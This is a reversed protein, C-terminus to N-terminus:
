QLRLAAQAIDALGPTVEVGPTDYWCLTQGNARIVLGDEPLDLFRRASKSREIGSATVVEALEKQQTADLSGLQFVQGTHDTPERRLFTGDTWVAVGLGSDPRTGLGADSALVLWPKTKPLTPPSPAAGRSAALLAIVMAILPRM